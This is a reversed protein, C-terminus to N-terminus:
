KSHANKEFDTSLIVFVNLVTLIENLQFFYFYQRMVGKMYSLDNPHKKQFEAIENELKVMEKLTEKRLVPLTKRIHETLEKNLKKRLYPTGLRDSINKYNKRFFSREYELTETIDKKNDIDKQSRNVVGVWGHHLQLRGGEFIDRADTGPDMLDLKTLVGITRDGNPDFDQALKLADDNTLEGNAPTVLLILCNPKSIFQIIMTKIQEEIDPSQEGVPVKTIGPLDVLTLNVVNPSYIRLCIPKSSIAKNTGAERDTEAEIENRIASFDM